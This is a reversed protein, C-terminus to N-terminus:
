GREGIVAYRWVLHAPPWCSPDTRNTPTLKEEFNANSGIHNVPPRRGRNVQCPDKRLTRNHLNEVVPCVQAMRM